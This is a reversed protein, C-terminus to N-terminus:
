APWPSRPWSCTAHVEPRPGPKLASSLAGFLGRRRPPPGDSEAIGQNPELPGVTERAGSLLYLSLAATASFILVDLDLVVRSGFLKYITGGLVGALTTYISLGVALRANARVLDAENDVVGPVLAAKAVSHTKSCVLSLFAAPFLLLSHIWSAMM